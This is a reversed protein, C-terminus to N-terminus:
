IPAADGSEPLVQEAWVTKGVDLYRSGWRSSLQAVLFLGRGGEDTTAARRLRPQSNGPDTVECILSTDRILRLDVPGGAYRISNTVLESIIVETTFAMDDLGWRNLQRTTADRAQAVAAPDAPFTWCVTADSSLPLTRALMLAIDDRPPADAMGAFLERGVEELPRDQACLASVRELFQGTAVDLDRNLAELLGDTYMALVSGPPLDITTTEFPLGHVGLPPGPRIPLLTATGDPMVLAPPPHGAAALTCLGAIPDYVAYLCTGGVADMREPDAEARLRAVLDDLRALLEDPTLELDALTQVATRLRGMMATAHLGHGTVDGVVLGTRLSPLTIADFWDGGIEAGGGAPQYRGVTELSTSRTAARPLLRRQVQTATRHERTFRRANDVSLAAHAAIEALLDGDYTGFPISHHARWVAVFGLLCGRAYLPAAAFSHGDEPVWLRCSRAEHNLSAEVGQRDLVIAEGRQFNRVFALDPPPPVAQGDQIMNQPWNGDASRASTRRLNLDGGGQPEPPEDGLLVSEALDVWALDAFEPVLVSTLHRTTDRVDLSSGIQQAARHRLALRRDALWHDTADTLFTAVGTTRDHHDALRVASVNFSFERHPTGSLRIRHEHSVTPVGTAMIRRLAQEGAVADPASMVQSLRVGPPYVPGSPPETLNSRTILLDLDHVIFGIQDQALLATLLSAALGAESVKAAPAAILLREDTELLPLQRYAVEVSHGSAHRLLAQGAKAQGHVGPRLCDVVRDPEALLDRVPHGCVQRATWGLFAAAEESWVRVLGRADVVAGAVDDLYDSGLRDANEDDPGSRARM